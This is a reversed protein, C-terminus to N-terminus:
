KKQEPKGVEELKEGNNSIAFRVLARLVRNRKVNGLITRLDEYVTPDNVLGGLTGEGSNVKATISKLDAAAGGLNAFLGQGDGYVLQHIASNKSMRSDHLLVALEGAAAGLESLAQGGKRDYFISHMAGQGHQVENLLVDTRAIAQDLRRASAAAAGLFGTLEQATKKDYILAHLVGHGTEIEELITRASRLLSALDSRLELKTYAAVGERLDNTIALVNDAIKGSAALLSTIDGSSGTPIEGGPPIESSDVSGLSIDVVKDGLVGRSGIRAVSDARIRNAFKTSIELQVQIRKDGLDPSFTIAAVRGVSLGGLRVPSDLNLGEVNEFGSHYAVQRDFLRGEKGILFIVLGALALAGAVFLGARVILRREQAAPSLNSV